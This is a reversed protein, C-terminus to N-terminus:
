LTELWQLYADLADNLSPVLGHEVYSTLLPALEYKMRALAEDVTKAIFYSHGPLYDLAEDSAQEVFVQFLREFAVLAIKPGALLPARSPWISIFAFRRRVALDLIATSRDASNMTGLVYLNDPLALSKGYPAGFDYTLDIKRPAEDGTSREFLFLAEGLVRSLDARNIEDLVLLYPKASARAQVAANMLIGATARFGFRGEKEVPALGGIFQEYGTSPHFQHTKGEGGFATELLSLAMHTKGTGPPGQLVVFRRSRIVSEVDEPPPSGLVRSWITTQLEDSQGKFAVLPHVGRERMYFDLLAVFAAETKDGSSHPNVVAYLVNGYRQKSAPWDSLLEGAAPPLPIDIRTPDRKAWSCFAKANNLWGSFARCFRAHGPRTLVDEDPALGQTGVGLSFFSGSEAPFLVFSTGGYAGSSPGDKHLIAAFPAKELALFPARFSVANMGRQGYRTTVLEKLFAEAEEHWNAAYPRILFEAIAHM